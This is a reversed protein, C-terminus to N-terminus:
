KGEGRELRMGVSRELEARSRRAEAAAEAERVRAELLRLRAELVERAAVEGADKAKECRAAAAELAPIIKQRWAELEGAARRFRAHAERVEAAIRHRVAAYRRAAKELAADARAARGGGFDFLPLLAELGPGLELGEKGKRDNADLIGSISLWEWRALGAREGAAEVAFEAARLDPRAAMAAELLGDVEAPVPPLGPSSPSFFVPCRELGLGLLARLRGEVIGVERELRDREERARLAETRAGMAEIPSADGGALRAEELEAIRRCTAEYAGAIEARRRALLLDAYTVRVDRALDLGHQILQAAVRECDLRAAEARRPALWLAELPWKAAFELQKPGLPFLVSLVPNPLLGAQRLDARAIGLEALAEQFGPNNWLAVAVAEDETLGDEATVGEPIATEGPKAGPGIGIGLRGEIGSSVYARDYAGPKSCGVALAALM